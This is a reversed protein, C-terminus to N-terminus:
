KLKKGLDISIFVNSMLNMKNWDWVSSLRSIRMSLSEDACWGVCLQICEIMFVVELDRHMLIIKFSRRSTVGAADSILITVLRLATLLSEIALRTTVSQKNM